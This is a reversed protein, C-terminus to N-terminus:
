QLAVAAALPAAQPHLIRAAEFLALELQGLNEAADVVTALDLTNESVFASLCPDTIMTAMITPSPLRSTMTTSMATDALRLCDEARPFLFLHTLLLVTTTELIETIELVSIRVALLLPTSRAIRSSVHDATL